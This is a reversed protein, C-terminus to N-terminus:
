NGEPALEIARDFISVVDEITTEEADNTDTVYMRGAETDTLRFGDEEYYARDFASPFLEAAARGLEPFAASLSTETAGQVKYRKVPVDQKAKYDWQYDDVTIIECGSAAAAAGFACVEVGTEPNVLAGKHLGRNLLETRAKRYLDKTAM